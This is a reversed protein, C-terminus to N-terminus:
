GARYEAWQRTLDAHLTVWDEPNERAAHRRWRAAFAESFLDIHAPDAGAWSPFQAVWDAAQAPTHGGKLLWPILLGFEVWAAGRAAFAWDVVRAQGDPTILLNDANLDTHLLADGAMPTVDETVSAWRREVRMRVVDPCPAAQLAQVTKALIELDDSGPTFDAHRGDVQEFGLALWGGAEAQWLLRPAFGTVHPNVAAENRLSRVEPGDADPLKRAAKVFMPGRATHFTSAIDAHNGTPAPEISKIPGTHAEIAERVISPLRTRDTRTM